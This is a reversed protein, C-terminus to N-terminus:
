RTAAKAAATRVLMIRNLGSEPLWVEGPRGHIQRVNANPGSGPAAAFKETKPDFAYTTNAGWQSVWVVDNDDVYVAYARPKDGPMLWSKWARTKPTYRALYGSNWESIWLDGKSDSWVRRAGSGPREPEIVQAEGTARDIKALHSGALSVYYIEGDPTATIGYPGRGKPAKWVQVEGSAVKLRGYIGNQGTFWLDGAGDFACTNLNTYGTDPPLPWAKVEDTAPNYRVIANLGSDTIWANGDKGTIVGHPASGKGLPVLKVSGTAPDLVGLAGDRQATYWVKGDPAPSLDHVYDGAAPLDFVQTEFAGAVPGGVLLGALSLVIIAAKM